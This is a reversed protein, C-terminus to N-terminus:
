LISGLLHCGLHCSWPLTGNREGQHESAAGALERNPRFYVWLKMRKYTDGEFRGPMVRALEVYPRLVLSGTGRHRAEQLESTPVLEM